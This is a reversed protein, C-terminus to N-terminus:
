LPAFNPKMTKWETLDTQYFSILKTLVKDQNQIGISTSSDFSFVSNTSTFKCIHLNDYSPESSLTINIFTFHLRCIKIKQPMLNPKVLGPCPFIMHDQLVIKKFAWVLHFFHYNHIYIQFTTVLIVAAIPLKECLICLYLIGSRVKLSYISGTPKRLVMDLVIQQGLREVQENEAFNQFSRYNMYFIVIPDSKM